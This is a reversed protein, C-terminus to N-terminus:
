QKTLTVTFTATGTSQNTVSLTNGSVTFTLNRVFTDGPQQFTVTSGSVVATGAMSLSIDTGAISAPLTLSGSTRNDAAITISLTGGQALVDITPEGAPTVLFETALYTGAVPSSVQTPSDSGCAMSASAFLISSAALVSM